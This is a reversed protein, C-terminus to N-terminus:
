GLNHCRSKKTKKSTKPKANRKANEGLKDGHNCKHNAMRDVIKTSTCYLPYIAEKGLAVKSTSVSIMQEITPSYLSNPGTRSARIELAVTQKSIGHPETGGQRIKKLHKFRVSLTNEFQRRSSKTHYSQFYPRASCPRLTYVIM